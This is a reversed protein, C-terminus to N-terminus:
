LIPSLLRAAKELAQVLVGRSSLAFNRIERSSEYAARCRASLEKTFGEDWVLLGLEFNLKMSRVDLNASGVMALEDDIIMTKSHLMGAGYEFIRVGAKLLEPYYYRGAYGVLPSDARSPLMIRVDVGRLAASQLARVLPEDPIFYPTTIYVSRKAGAIGTFFLFASANIQQDPGSPIVAITAGAEPFPPPPEPIPPVDGAAFAWDEAFIVSFDRVAPGRVSLHVDKYRQNGKKLFRWSYENGVNMSGTLVLEGDIIMLKRHNRLHVSWRKAFPSLPHFAKVKGGSAEIDLLLGDDIGISGVADYLLRVEIAAAASDALQRLFRVGTEDHAIIYFEVWISKKAAKIAEMVSEFAAPAEPLLNVSNGKTAEQYTINAALAAISTDRQLPASSPKSALRRGVRRSAARKRITTRKVSPNALFFYALSGAIPFALIAFIWMLTREAGQTRWLASIIAVVDLVVAAEYFIGQTTM